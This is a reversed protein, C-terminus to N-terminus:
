RAEKIRKSPFVIIIRKYFQHDFKRTSQESGSVTLELLQSDVVTAFILTAQVIMMMM